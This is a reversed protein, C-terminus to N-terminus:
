AHIVNRNTPEETCLLCGNHKTSPWPRFCDPVTILNSLGMVDCCPPLEYSPSNKSFKLKTQGIKPQTRTTYGYNWAILKLPFCVERAWLIAATPQTITCTKARLNSFVAWLHCNIEPINTSKVTLKLRCNPMKTSCTSFIGYEKTIKREIWRKSM